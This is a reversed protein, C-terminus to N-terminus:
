KKMGNSEKDESVCMEGDDREGGDVCEMVVRSLPSRFRRCVQTVIM